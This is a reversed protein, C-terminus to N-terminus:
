PVLLLSRNTTVIGNTMIKGGKKLVVVKLCQTGWQCAKELGEEGWGFFVDLRSQTIASGTDWVEALGYGPVFIRTGYALVNPDAAVIGIQPCEKFHKKLDKQGSTMVGKGNLIIDTEYSGTAYRKQGPLPGYYATVVMERVTEIQGPMRFGLEKDSEAPKKEFKRIPSSSICISGDIKESYVKKEQGTDIAKAMEVLEHYSMNLIDPQRTTACGSLLVALVIISKFLNM